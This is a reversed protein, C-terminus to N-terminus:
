NQTSGKGLKTINSFWQGLHRKMLTHTQTVTGSYCVLIFLVDEIANDRQRAM